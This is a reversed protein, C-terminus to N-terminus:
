LNSTLLLDISKSSIQFSEGLFSNTLIGHYMYNGGRSFPMEWLYSDLSKADSFEVLMPALINSLAVSATQPMISPINPVCYHTIGHKEFSPKDLSSVRSTEFCGGQDISVDILVSKDKMQMVMDETVVCPTRGHQPRLAGIVVDAQRIERELVDAQLISNNVHQINMAQLRRLKYLATDFVQVEAGLALATRTAYQGVTGAGLILTKTSAVGSIGGFLLGKGEKGGLYNAAILVAAKGAMESMSQIIPLIGSHDRIYEFAFASIRKQAMATLQAAELHPINLASVLIQNHKMLGIEEQSPFAIKLLIDSQFVQKKDSSIEAGAESYAADPFHAAQGAQSEVIVKFGNYILMKVALPTLGVRQEHVHNEKPIGISYSSKKEEVAQLVEKTQSRAKTALDHLEEKKIKNM